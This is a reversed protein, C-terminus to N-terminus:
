WRSFRLSSASNRPHDGTMADRLNFLLRGQDYSSTSRAARHNRSCPTGTPGASRRTSTLILAHAVEFVQVAHVRQGELYPLDRLRPRASRFHAEEAALDEDARGADDVQALRQVVLPRMAVARLLGDSM